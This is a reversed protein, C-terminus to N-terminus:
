LSVKSPFLDLNYVIRYSLQTLVCVCIHLSTMLSLILCPNVNFLFYNNFHFFYRKISKNQSVTVHTRLSM